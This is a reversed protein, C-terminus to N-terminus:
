DCSENIDLPPLDGYKEDFLIVKNQSRGIRILLRINITQFTKKIDKKSFNIYHEICKTNIIKYFRVYTDPEFESFFEILDAITLGAHSCDKCVYEGNSNLFMNRKYVKNKCIHCQYKGEKKDSEKTKDKDKIRSVRFENDM